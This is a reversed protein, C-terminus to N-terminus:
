RTEKKLEAIQAKMSACELRICAEFREDNADDQGHQSERHARRAAKELVTAEYGAVAARIQRDNLCRTVTLTEGDLSGEKRPRRAM